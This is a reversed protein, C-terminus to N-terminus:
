HECLPTFEVGKFAIQLQLQLKFLKLGYSVWLLIMSSASLFGVLLESQHNPRDNARKQSGCVAVVVCGLSPGVM